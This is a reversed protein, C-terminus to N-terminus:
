ILFLVEFIGCALVFIKLCGDLPCIFGRVMLLDRDDKSDTYVVLQQSVCNEGNVRIYSLDEFNKRIVQMKQCVLFVM